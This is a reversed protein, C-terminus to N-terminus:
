RKASITIDESKVGCVKSIVDAVNLVQERTLSSAKVVASVSNARIFVLADGFGKAKILNEMETEKEKEAILKLMSDQAKQQDAETKADKIANRLLESRESRIRERELRYEVFFDPAIAPANQEIKVPEAVQLAARHDVQVHYVYRAVGAIGLLLCVTALISISYFVMRKGQVMTLIKM